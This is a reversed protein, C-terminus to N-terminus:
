FATIVVIISGLEGKDDDDDDDDCLGRCSMDDASHWRWTLFMSAVSRLQNTEYSAWM